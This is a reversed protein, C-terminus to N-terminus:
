HGVSHGESDAQDTCYQVESTGIMSGRMSEEVHLQGLAEYIDKRCSLVADALSAAHNATYM